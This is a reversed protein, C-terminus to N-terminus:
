RFKVNFTSINSNNKLSISMLLSSWSITIELLKQKLYFHNNGFLRAHHCVDPMTWHGASALRNFRYLRNYSRPIRSTWSQNCQFLFSFFCMFKGKKEKTCSSISIPISFYFFPDKRRTYPYSYSSDMRWRNNGQSQTGFLFLFLFVDRSLNVVTKSSNRERQTQEIYCNPPFSHQLPCVVPVAAHRRWSASIEGGVLKKKRRGM